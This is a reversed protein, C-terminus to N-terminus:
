RATFRIWGFGALLGAGVGLMPNALTGVIGVTIFALAGGLGAVILNDIFRIM